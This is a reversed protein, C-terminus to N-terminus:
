GRKFTERKYEEIVDKISGSIGTIVKIVAAKLTQFANPGVNGTLIVKVGKSAVLQASQIGAGSVANIDPNEVAEFEMTKPDVIIFYQCRGFRPDVESDLNKGRSTVCVKRGSISRTESEQRKEVQKHHANGESHECEKGGEHECLSEGGKLTGDLLQKIVDDIRGTIGLVTKIGAEAFLSQARAGMGGAIICEAGQEKLFKPLFGPQHGPNYIVKRSVVKNGEIDVITYSPCRGFHQSVSDGETAIAIRM